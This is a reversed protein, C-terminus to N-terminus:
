KYTDTNLSVSNSNTYLVILVYDQSLSLSVFESVFTSYIQVAECNNCSGVGMIGVQKLIM